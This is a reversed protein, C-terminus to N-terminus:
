KQEFTTARACMSVCLLDVASGPGSIHDTTIIEPSWYLSVM